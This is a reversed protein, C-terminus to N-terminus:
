WASAYCLSAKVKRVNSFNRLSSWTTQTWSYGRLGCHRKLIFLM